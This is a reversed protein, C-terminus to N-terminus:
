LGLTIMLGLGGNASARVPTIRLRRNDNLRLVEKSVFYGYVMAFYVDSPWHGESTIRELGVAGAITYATITFPLFDVHHSFVSAIQIINSAHGSPFSTGNNFDFHRPGFGEFPRTRGVTMNAVNKVGGAIYHSELIDSCISVGKSWHVIYSCALGGLFWKNTAGMYGVREFNEGLKRIPKYLDDDRSRMFADHIEQDYIFIVGGVALLGGLVVANKGTLRAPSSYVRGADGVFQRGGTKLDTWLHYSRGPSSTEAIETPKVSERVSSTDAIGYGTQSTAPSAIALVFVLGIVFVGKGAHRTDVRM